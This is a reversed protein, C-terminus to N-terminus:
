GVEAFLPGDPSVGQELALLARKRWLGGGYGGLGPGKAVVRHCPVLIAIPNRANAHGVARQAGPAGIARALDDYTRSEGYPIRLLEQWVREQFPTGACLLPISFARRSGHFYEDLEEVLRELVLHASGAAAGGLRAGVRVRQAEARPGGAFELLCVGADVVGALLPGLPSSISRTVIQPPDPAPSEVADPYQPEGASM